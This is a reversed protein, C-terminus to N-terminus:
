ENSSGLIEPEGVYFMDVTMGWATNNGVKTDDTDLYDDICQRVGRGSLTPYPMIRGGILRGSTRAMHGETQQAFIPQSTPALEPPQKCSLLMTFANYM